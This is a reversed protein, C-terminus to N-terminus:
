VRPKPSKGSVSIHRTPLKFQLKQRSTARRRWAGASAGSLGSRQNPNAASLVAPLEAACLGQLLM